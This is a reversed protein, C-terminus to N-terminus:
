TLPLGLTIAFRDANPKTSIGLLGKAKQVGQLVGRSSLRLGPQPTDRLWTDATEETLAPANARIHIAVAPASTTANRRNAWLWGRFQPDQLVADLRSFEECRLQVTTGDAAVQLSQLLAPIVMLLLDIGNLHALTTSRGLLACDVRQKRPESGALQTAIAVAQQLGANLVAPSSERNAFATAFFGETVTAATEAHKRAENISRTIAALRIDARPLANIARDANLLLANTTTLLNATQLLAERAHASATFEVEREVRATELDRVLSDSSQAIAMERRRLRTRTIWEPIRGEFAARSPLPKALFDFVQLPIARRLNEESDHGSLIVYGLAADLDRAAEIFELGSMQPMKIDVICLDFQQRRVAALAEQPSQHCTLRYRESLRLRLSSHIQREDDVVLIRPPLADTTKM